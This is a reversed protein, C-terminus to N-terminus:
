GLVLFEVIGKGMIVSLVDVPFLKPHVLYGLAEPYACTLRTLDSGWFVRHAGFAGVLSRVWRRATPYPFAEPVLVPLGSAKVAVNDFRALACTRQLASEFPQQWLGAHDVMLKLRPHREAVAALLDARDPVLVMVPLELEEACSWLSDFSGRGLRAQSADDAFAVRIGAVEPARRLPEIARPGAADSTVGAMVTFRDPFARAAEVCADNEGLAFVPPTLVARDVGALDMQTLVDRATPPRRGFFQHRGARTMREPSPNEVEAWLHIQCDVVPMECGDAVLM